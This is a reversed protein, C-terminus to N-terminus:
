RVVPDARLSAERRLLAAALEAPPGVLDVVGEAVAAAPMGYVVCSDADQALIYGGADHVARLGVAGDSGMGTLVVVALRDRYVEAASQFLRTAAPRFGGVADETSLHVSRGSVELHRDDPAVYVCGGVLREGDDAIKVPLPSWRNMWSVFGGLFGVAMHQVVLVPAPFDVPLATLLLQLAPPGGTSAAVVVADLSRTEAAPRHSGASNAPAAAGRSTPAVSPPPVFGRKTSQPEDVGNVGNVLAPEAEATTYSTRRRVIRVRSLAHLLATLHEAEARFRPSDAPPPSAVSGLAGARLGEAVAARNEPREILVVATPADTMIREVLASISHPWLDTDLLLFSPKVEGLRRLTEHVGGCITTSHFEPSAAVAREFLAATEPSGHAVLVEIM